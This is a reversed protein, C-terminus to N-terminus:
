DGQPRHIQINARRPPGSGEYILPFLRAYLKQVYPGGSHTCLVSFRDESGGPDLLAVHDIGVELHEECREKTPSIQM